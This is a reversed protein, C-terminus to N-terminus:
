ASPGCRRRWLARESEPTGLRALEDAATLRSAVDAKESGLVRALTHVALDARAGRALAALARAPSLTAEFRAPTRAIEALMEVQAPTLRRVRPMRTADRTVLREVAASVRAAPRM